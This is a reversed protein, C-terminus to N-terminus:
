EFRSCLFEVAYEAILSFSRGKLSIVALDASTPPMDVVALLSLKNKGDTHDAANDAYAIVTDTTLALTKLLQMDDCEVVLPLKQDAIQFAIRGLSLLVDDHIRVSAIGWQVLDKLCVASENLLPHGPRVYFNASLQGIRKVTLDPAAIVNRVDAIYFDLKEARLHESLMNASSVEVRTKIGPYRTRIEKLLDPVLTATTFPGAGFALDGILRERYLGVDREMCHIAFLLNKAREVVFAGADTCKVDHGTRDFLKLGLEEEAVQISRSLASQSINCKEAARSFNREDAVAVLHNLRKLNM